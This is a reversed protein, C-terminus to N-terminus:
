LMAEQFKKSGATNGLDVAEQVSKGNKIAEKYVTRANKFGGKILASFFYGIHNLGAGATVTKLRAEWATDDEDIALREMIGPLLWPVYEQALNAINGYESSESILEALSGEASIKAGATLFQLKKNGAIYAGVSRAMPTKTLGTKAIGAGGIGGTWRTLFGFEVLGRAFKGINTQMEPEYVDPIEFYSKNQYQESFPNDEPNVPKGMLTKLGTDITDKSLSAFSGASEGADILGGVTARIGESVPDRAEDLVQQGEDLRQKGENAITQRNERIEERSLQDGQFVNDIADRADIAINELSNSLFKGFGKEGEASQKMAEFQKSGTDSLNPLEESIDPLEIQESDDNNIEGEGGMSLSNEIKEEM